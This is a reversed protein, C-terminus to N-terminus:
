SCQPVHTNKLSTKRLCKGREILIKRFANYNPTLTDLKLLKKDKLALFSGENTYHRVNSPFYISQFVIWTMNSHCSPTLPSFTLCKKNYANSILLTNCWQWLNPPLGGVPSIQIDPSLQRTLHRRSWDQSIRVKLDGCSTGALWAKTGTKLYAM